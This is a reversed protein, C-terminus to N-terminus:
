SSRRTFELVKSVGGGLKLLRNLDKPSLAQMEETWTVILELFEHIETLKNLTYAEQESDEMLKNRMLTLTPDLERRRKQMVLTRAIEWIDDPVSFYDRRDGPLHQLSILEWAQLEKLGISVNSRSFELSQAIQEANLPDETFVLLAYIQGVTRNMGWRSGMEGFHLILSQQLPSVNQM